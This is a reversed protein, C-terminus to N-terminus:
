AWAQPSGNKQWSGHSRKMLASAKEAIMGGRVRYMYEMLNFYSTTVVTENVENLSSAIYLRESYGLNHLVTVPMKDCNVRDESKLQQMATARHMGEICKYLITGDDQKFEEVYIPAGPVWGHQAISDKLIKVCDAKIYRIQAGPVIRNPDVEITEKRHLEILAQLSMKPPEIVDATAARTLRQTQKTRAPAAPAPARRKRGANSPPLPGGPSVPEPRIEDYDDASSM